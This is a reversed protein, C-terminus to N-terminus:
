LRYKLPVPQLAEGFRLAAEDSSSTPAGGIQKSVIGLVDQIVPDAPAIFSALVVDIDDFKQHWSENEHLQSDAWVGENVGLIKTRAWASRTVTQGNPRMYRVQAEVDAPTASHIACVAERIVPHYPTAVTQGPHVTDCSIWGSWDSYGSLRYRIQYDTLTESTVNRFISRAVWFAKWRPDGYLKYLAAMIHPQADIRWVPSERGQSVGQHPPCTYTLTNSHPEMTIDSAGHPLVIKIQIVSSLM